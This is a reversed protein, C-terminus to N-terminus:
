YYFFRFITDAAACMGSRASLLLSLGFTSL